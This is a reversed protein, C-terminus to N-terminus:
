SVKIGLSTWFAPHVQVEASDVDFTLIGDSQHSWLYSKSDTTKIGVLSTRWFGSFIFHLFEKVTSNSEAVKKAQLSFDDTRDPYKVGYDLCFDEVRKNTIANLKFRENQKKLLSTAFDLLTPYNAFWEDQLSRLRKKSYEEEAQLLHTKTITPKGEAKEICINFFEILERPRGLTRDLMYNIASQKRKSFNNKPLLDEYGVNKNTYTQRVLFNVRKNLLDKLQEDTWRIPLYLSRYKEEQFGSDRTLRFVRDILDNRLIIIIKINKVKKFDRVTEILSRILLFRFKDDVWNEDLQDVCIYYNQQPNSFVDDNLFDLIESLEKMHISDITQQGIKTIETKEEESLNINGTLSAKLHPFQTVLDGELNQEVRKSIEKIRYATDHWFQDNWKLIYQIARDKAKDRCLIQKFRDIFNQKESENVINYKKKILEVTFVHRWLLKFFIDLKVGSDFFFKLITNNTLYNFSLNEPNVAITEKKRAVLTNVLATKGAGTRGLVIRRPEQCNILTALDGTDIFCESLFQDDKADAAGITTHRRFCFQDSM